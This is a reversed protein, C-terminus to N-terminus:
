QFGIGRSGPDLSSRALKPDRRDGRGVVLAYGVLAVVLLVPITPDRLPPIADQPDPLVDLARDFLSAAQPRVPAPGEPVGRQAPAPPTPPLAASTARGFHLVVPASAGSTPVVREPAPAPRSRTTPGADATGEDSADHEHPKRAHQRAHPPPGTKTAPGVHASPSPGTKPPAAPTGEAPHTAALRPAPSQQSGQDPAGSPGSGGDPQGGSAHKGPPGSGTRGGDASAKAPGGGPRPGGAHARAAPLVVLAGVIVIGLLARVAAQCHTSITVNRVDTSTRVSKLFFYTLHGLVNGVM